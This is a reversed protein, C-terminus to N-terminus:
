QQEQSTASRIPSTVGAGLADNCRGEAPEKTPAASLYNFLTIAIEAMQWHVQARGDPRGEAQWLYYACERVQRERDSMTRM